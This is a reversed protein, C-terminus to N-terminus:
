FGGVIVSVRASDVPTGAYVVGIRAATTSPNTGNDVVVTPSTDGAHEKASGSIPYNGDPFATHWTLTYDGTGNDTISAVNYHNTIAPTGTGDFVIWANILQMQFNRNFHKESVVSGEIVDGSADTKFRGVRRLIVVGAPTTANASVVFPVTNAIGDANAFVYYTTSNAFSPGSADLNAGTINVTNTNKRLVRKSGDAKSCGVLGASAQITDADVYSLEITPLSNAIHELFDTSSGQTIGSGLMGVLTALNTIDDNPTNQDDALVFDIDDLLETYVPVTAPITM